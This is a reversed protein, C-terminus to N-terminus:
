VLVCLNVSMCVFLCVFCARRHYSGCCCFCCGCCSHVVVHGVVCQEFVFCDVYVVHVVCSAAVNVVCCLGVVVDVALVVDCAVAVDDSDVGVVGVSLHNM